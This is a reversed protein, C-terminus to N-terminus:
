ALWIRGALNQPNNNIVLSCTVPDMVCVSLLKSTITNAWTYQPPLSFVLKCLPFFLFSCGFLLSSSPMRMHGWNKTELKEYAQDM